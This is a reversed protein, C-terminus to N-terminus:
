AALAEALTRGRWLKIRDAPRTHLRRVVNGGTLVLDIRSARALAACRADIARLAGLWGEWDHLLRPELLESWVLLAGDPPADRAAAAAAGAAQAAGRWEPADALVSSFPPPALAAWRGGGHLWLGNVTPVGRAERAENVPHVHWTMQIETLVRSWRPADEGQPLVAHLPAGVVAALPLARVDWPRTARLFWRDSQVVLALGADALLANAADILAQTEQADPPAAIPTLVLHDRALELHVPDAQWLLGDPARGALAAFAYPATPLPLAQRFLHEALWAHHAPSAAESDGALRSRALWGALATARLPEALAGVVERPLLAGPVLLTVQM